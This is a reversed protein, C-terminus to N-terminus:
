LARETYFMLHASLFNSFLQVLSLFVLLDCISRSRTRLGITGRPPDLLPRRDARILDIEAGVRERLANFPNTLKGSYSDLKPRSRFM